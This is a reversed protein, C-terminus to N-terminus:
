NQGNVCSDFRRDGNHVRRAESGLIIGDNPETRDHTKGIGFFLPTCSHLLPQGENTQRCSFQLIPRAFTGKVVSNIDFNLPWEIFSFRSLCFALHADM